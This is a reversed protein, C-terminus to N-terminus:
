KLNKESATQIIQQLYDFDGITVPTFCVRNVQSPILDLYALIESAPIIQATQWDRVQLKVVLKDRCIEFARHVIQKFLAQNQDERLAMENKIQRHYAMLYIFDVGTDLIERLNHAYWNEAKEIFVPTEYHINIGVKISSNVLKCNRIIAELLKNIRNIKIRQWNQQYPTNKEIMLKEKAPVQTITNFYAKGWSSFGENYRLTFDDQILICHIKHSALEKFVTIIKQSADPNFIDLKLVPQLHGNEYQIDFLQPESIWNFKRGIMWACLELNKHDFEQIMEELSPKIVKFQSNDFYLGGNDVDDQFVRYIIRSIGIKQLRFYDLQQQLKVTHFQIEYTRALL